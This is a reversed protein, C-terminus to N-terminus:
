PQGGQQRHAGSTAPRWRPPAHCRSAPLLAHCVRRSCAQRVISDCDCGVVQECSRRCSGDLAVRCDQALAVDQQVSVDMVRAVYYSLCSRPGPTPQAPPLQRPMCCGLGEVWLCSLAGPTSGPAAAAAHLVRPTPAPSDLEELLADIQLPHTLPRHTHKPLLSPRGCPSTGEWALLLPSWRCAPRPSCGHLLVTFFM